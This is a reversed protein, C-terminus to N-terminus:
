PFTVVFFLLTFWVRKCLHTYMFDPFHMCLLRSAFHCHIQWWDKLVTNIFVILFLGRMSDVRERREKKQICARTLETSDRCNTLTQVPQQNTFPFAEGHHVSAPTISFNLKASKALSLRSLYLQSLNPKAEAPQRPSLTWSLSTYV